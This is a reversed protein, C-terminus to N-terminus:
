DETKAVPEYGRYETDMGLEAIQEEIKAADGVVIWTFGDPDVADRMATNLQEADLGRYRSALTEVYDFDRGFRVDSQMQGLVASSQEYSGPLERVNGTITRELEEATVGKDAVFDKVHGLIAAISPGTKNTQVPSYLLFPIQGDPRQIISRSGYSWGKTERLDYNIRSLFDGGLVENSALLAFLDDTGKADLVQGAFILSQPSNPQNIVIIRGKQEPIPADIKKDAVAESVSEWTGFRAELMPTITELAVDGVVYIEAKQPVMWNSHFDVLDDRTLTSVVEADGSGSLPAGYPHAAGYILPPLNRLAIGIPQSNEQAISTLQQQRVRELEAADFAPNKIVDALLDLSGALNPTVARVTVTTDDLGGGVGLGAGLREQLEALQVSNYSTTGETLMATTMGHLGSKGAPDAASGADFNVAVRVVPVADRQAYYVKIGNSLQATVVDPFDVDAITGVQPFTSRDVQTLAQLTPTDFGFGSNDPAKFYAPSTLSGTRAGSGSGVEEYAEREGPEVRIELAPRSLWKQMAASIAEPTVAALRQLETKYYNSDGAFLQGQALAVAKGGFGGVQELGSIRNAAERTAVRNVEDQTPGNAILDALIADLRDAVADVDQGPKVDVQIEFLSGHVFPLVYSSVRVASQEDRVLINDLRSSSLGGLVTAGARIATFEPDALGPIVWNRYIRTNPVKDKMVETIPADLTPIPAVVPQVKKGPAIKGFWKEVLPRAADPTIDGALVLIANNPGYHDIFWQRMDDLSAAQLDELSGITSHGYPHSEPFLLETQRYSVLGYPQSDGQRKENQVVGIQNDLKEQDIAGLLHGMRDSELFLAAELAEKPVTQFYNTRDLWTTGNLDTAGIKKTYQFYDGPANESGNFMIHEFLHAYGTKGKPEHKSGVDYWVSVAVIPAKHDEHVIVTLGNDLTFSQHPISVADVLEAVPASDQASALPAAFVSSSVLLSALMLAKRAPSKM